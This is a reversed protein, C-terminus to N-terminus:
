NRWMKKLRLKNKGKYMLKNPLDFYEVADLADDIDKFNVKIM